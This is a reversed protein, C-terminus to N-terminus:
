KESAKTRKSAILNYANTWQEGTPQHEIVHDAFQVMATVEEGEKSKHTRFEKGCTKCKRYDSLVREGM